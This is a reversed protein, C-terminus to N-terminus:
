STIRQRDYSDHLCLNQHFLHHDDDDYMMMLLLLLMISYADSDHDDQPM